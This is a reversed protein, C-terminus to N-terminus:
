LINQAHGIISGIKTVKPCFTIKATKVKDCYNEM